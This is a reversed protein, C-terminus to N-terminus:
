SLLLGAMVRASDDWDYRLIELAARGRLETYLQCDVSIRELGDCIDSESEPDVCLGAAGAVEAMASDRSCLVPLGMSLAEVVPLGYGEYLSPMLLAYARSYLTRLTDDDVKGLLQVHDALGHEAVMGAIDEGGWGAGGVIKLPRAQATGALFRRYARLLRPLNKRPELTGVFLFYDGPLVQGEQAQCLAGARLMSAGPVVTVKHAYQPFYYELRQRTFHSVVAIIDARALARPTFFNEIQRGPFRMTDGHDKWVLDHVTVATRVTDPLMALQHRPGWFSEVRDRRAWWPMILHALQGARLVAPVGAVRHQVNPLELGRRDYPQPSYLFWQGGLQCMRLLLERTYRYIGTGPHCLPRADVAIRREAILPSGANGTM